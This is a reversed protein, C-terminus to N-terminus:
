RRSTAPQFDWFLGHHCLVLQAGREAAREFLELQALRRHGGAGGDRRGPVQLGNPDHRRLVGADLLDDLYSIIQDRDAVGPFTGQGGM